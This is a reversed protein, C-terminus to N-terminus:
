GGLLPRLTALLLAGNIMLIAAACLWGLGLLWPPTRLTGMVGPRGCLWVLPVVAFPLQLSLVVQSLVLMSTTAQDGLWVVAAM